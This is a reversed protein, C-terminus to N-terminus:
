QATNFCCVLLIRVLHGEQKLMAAYRNAQCSHESVTKTSDM